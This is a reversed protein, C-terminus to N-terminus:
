SHTNLYIPNELKENFKQLTIVKNKIYISHSYYKRSKFKEIYNHQLIVQCKKSVKSIIPFYTHIM